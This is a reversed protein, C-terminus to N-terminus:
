RSPRPHHAHHDAGGETEEGVTVGMVARRGGLHMPRSTAGLLASLSLKEGQRSVSMKLEDGPKHSQVWERLSDPSLSAQTGLDLLVDGVHIGAREAPSAEEVEDVQLTGGDHSSVAIGLYGTRASGIIKEPIIQAVTATEVTRFESLDPMGVVPQTTSPATATEAYAVHTCCCVALTLFAALHIGVRGGRM